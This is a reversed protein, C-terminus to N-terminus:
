PSARPDQLTCVQPNGDRLHAIRDQAELPLNVEDAGDYDRHILIWITECVWLWEPSCEIVSAWNLKNVENPKLHFYEGCVRRLEGMTADSPDWGFSEDDPLRGYDGWEFLEGLDPSFVWVVSDALNIGM